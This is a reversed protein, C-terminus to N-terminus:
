AYSAGPASVRHYFRTSPVEPWGRFDVVAGYTLCTPLSPDSSKLLKSCGRAIMLADGVQPTDVLPELLEVASTAGAYDVVTGKVTGALEGTTFEVTGLNFYDDPHDGGLDLVFRFDDTVATVVAAIPSLAVPCGTTPDGFTATCLPNLVRGWTENFAAAIGRVEFVFRSGEVRCEGVDGKMLRVPGDELAEWNVMFLHAVAGRYRGGLVHTQTVLEGIPGTVEFNSAELGVTLLVASVDIGTWPQYEVAGDGLNFALPEDHNTFALVTGDKLVLRLCTVLEHTDGALHALMGATLDRM